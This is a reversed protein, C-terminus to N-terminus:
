LYPTDPMQMMQGSGESYTANSNDDITAIFIAWNCGSATFMSVRFAIGQQLKNYLLPALHNM